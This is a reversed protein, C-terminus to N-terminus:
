KRMERQRRNRFNENVREFDRRLETPSKVSTLIHRIVFFELERKCQPCQFEYGGDSLTKDCMM